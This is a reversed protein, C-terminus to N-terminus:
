QASAVHAFYECERLHLRVVGLGIGPHHDVAIYM